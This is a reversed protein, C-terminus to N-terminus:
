PNALRIEFSSAANRDPQFPNNNHPKNPSDPTKKSPQPSVIDPHSLATRQLTAM